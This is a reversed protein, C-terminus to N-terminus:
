PTAETPSLRGACKCRTHNRLTITSWEPKFPSFLNKVHFTVDEEESEMSVCEHVPAHCYGVSRDCRHILLAQPVFIANPIRYDELEDTNLLFHILFWFTRYKLFRNNGIHILRPQPHKCACRVSTKLNTLFAVQKRISKCDAVCATLYLILLMLLYHKDSAM